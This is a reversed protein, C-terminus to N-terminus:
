AEDDAGEWHNHFYKECKEIFQRAAARDIFFCGRPSTGYDCLGASCLIYQILEVYKEPLDLRKMIDTLFSPEDPHVIM